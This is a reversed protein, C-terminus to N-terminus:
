RSTDQSRTAETYILGGAPIVAVYLEVPIRIGSKADIIFPRDGAYDLFMKEGPEHHLHMSIESDETYMRMHLCFQSYQYGDPYEALYEEWLIQRTVVGMRGRRRGLENVMGPMRTMLAEYRPDHRQTESERLRELLADDGIEKVHAWKLGANDAQKLYETVVPRSVTLARSIQRISLGSEEKLRIIERIKSMSIRAKPV